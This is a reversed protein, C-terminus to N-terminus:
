VRRKKGRTIRGTTARRKQVGVPKRGGKREWYAKLEAPAVRALKKELEWTQSDSGVWEVQVEVGAGQAGTRHDNVSFVHWLSADRMCAERGGEVSRWYTFLASPYSQQVVEEPEWVQTKTAAQTTTAEESILLDFLNRSTSSPRHDLVLIVKSSNPSPRAETADERNRTTTTRSSTKPSTSSKPSRSNRAAGAIAVVLQANQTTSKLSFSSRPAPTYVPSFPPSWLSRAAVADKHEQEMELSSMTEDEQSLKQHETHVDQVMKSASPLVVALIPQADVLATPCMLDQLHCFCCARATRVCSSPTFLFFFNPM